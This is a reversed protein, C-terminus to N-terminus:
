NTIKIISAIITVALILSFIQNRTANREGIEEKFSTKGGKAIWFFLAGIGYLILFIISLAIGSEDHPYLYIKNRKRSV